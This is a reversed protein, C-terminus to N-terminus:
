DRRYFRWVLTIGASVNNDRRVLPSDAFRAGALHDTRLFAGLWYDGLDRSASFTLQTGGYGGRAEYAARGPHVYQPAVGYVYQHLDRDGVLVGLSGGLKWAADGQGVKWDAALRPNFLNGRHRTRWDDFGIVARVPLVLETRVAADSNSLRYRLSPGVELMPDLEPMGLRAQNRDARVPPTAGFSLDLEARESLALKGRLGTRSVELHESRYSIYPVPLLYARQEDSGRYDPLSLASAGIGLELTGAQTVLSLLAASLGTYIRKM